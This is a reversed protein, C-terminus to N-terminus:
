VSESWQGMERSDVIVPWSEEHNSVHLDPQDKGIKGASALFQIQFSRYAFSRCAFSKWQGVIREWANLIQELASVAKVDCGIM